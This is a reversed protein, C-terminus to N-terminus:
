EKPKNYLPLPVVTGPIHEGTYRKAVIWADRVLKSVSVGYLRSAEEIEDGVDKPLYISIRHGDIEKKLKM